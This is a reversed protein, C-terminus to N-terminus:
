VTRIIPDAAEGEPPLRMLRRIPWRVRRPLRTLAPALSEFLAVPRIREPLVYLAAPVTAACTVVVAFLIAGSRWGQRELALRVVLATAGVGLALAVGPLQAAFFDRWRCGAIRVGLQAMAFYMFVVAVAVGAAAGAIGWRLGILAAGILLVAYVAQRRMEAYVEGFAHTLAGTSAYIARFLGVACLVQFALTAEVWQPGYLGVVLHPGSVIMGAMVPAVGLANLQVGKLYARAARAQDDKLRSYAAFLVNWTVDGFQNSPLQALQFARSYLGLAAPGLWRGVVFNDGNYSLYCVARNLIVGFGFGLLERLEDLALLPRLSHRVWVLAVVGQLAARVIGGWVLSWVGFGLLALGIGTVAYGLGDGALNAFFLGRFDLRRQLLARATAGLGSFVCILAQCRLVVAVAENGLLWAFLPAGAFLLAAVGFGILSSVTYAVRVQRGTIEERQILAPGLALDVVMEAFVLVILALAVLGFDSPSLLRALLVTVAFQLLNRVLSSGFQWQAATVMRAGLPTSPADAEPERPIQPM